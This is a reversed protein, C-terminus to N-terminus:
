QFWYGRRTARGRIAPWVVTQLMHLYTESDVNGEFWHVPLLQGDVIGVWAMVKAGHSKKCEVVTRPNEPAWIVDNKRSPAQRLVFWKEDSWLIQEFQEEPFTLWFQCAALRSEKNAPSLVQTLHPRYPRWKM